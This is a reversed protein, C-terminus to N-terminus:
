KFVEGAYPTFTIPVVQLLEVYRRGLETLTKTKPDYFGKEPHESDVPVTRPIIKGNTDLAVAEELPMTAQRVTNGDWLLVAMHGNASSNEALTALAHYGLSRAKRMDLKTPPGGRYVYEPVLGTHYPAHTGKKKFYLKSLEAMVKAAGGLKAHGFQDVFDPHAGIEEGTAEDVIGESVVGYFFGKEKYVRLVQEMVEDINIQVEPILVMDALGTHAMGLALFGAKRGMAENWLVREHSYATSYTYNSYDRANRVASPFGPDWINTMGEFGAFVNEPGIRGVDNDITKPVAMIRINGLVGERKVRWTVTTTDDGGIPLFYDISLENLRRAVDELSGLIKALNTRSSLIISGGQEPDVYTGPTPSTDNTHLFIYEGTIDDLPKREGKDEVFYKKGPYLIGAWGRRFGIVEGGLNEAAKTIGWLTANLASTDGGGTLVGVRFKPKAM